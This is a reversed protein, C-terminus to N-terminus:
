FTSDQLTATADLQRAASRLRAWFAQEHPDDDDGIIAKIYVHLM